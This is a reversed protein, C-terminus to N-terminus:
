DGASAPRFGLRRIAKQGLVIDFPFGDECRVPLVGLDPHAGLSALYGRLAPLHTRIVEETPLSRVEEASM